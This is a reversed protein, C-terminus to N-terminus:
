CTMLWKVYMLNHWSGHWDIEIWSWSLWVCLKQCMGLIRCDVSTRTNTIFVWDYSYMHSQLFLENLVNTSGAVNLALNFYFEIEIQVDLARYHHHHHNSSICNYLNFKWKRNNKKVSRQDLRFVWRFQHASFSAWAMWPLRLNGFNMTSVLKWKMIETKKWCDRSENAIHLIHPPYLINGHVDHPPELFDM